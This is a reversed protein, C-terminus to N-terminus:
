QRCARLRIADDIKKWDVHIGLSRFREKIEQVDVTKDGDGSFNVNGDSTRVPLVRKKILVEDSGSPSLRRLKEKFLLLIGSTINRVASLLRRQDGSKYDEVGIQIPSIANNLITDM